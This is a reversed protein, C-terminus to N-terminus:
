KSILSSQLELQIFIDNLSTFIQGHGPYFQYDCDIFKSIFQDISTLYDIRSSNPLNLPSKFDKMVFDGTFVAQEYKIIICGPSHGPTLMVTFAKDDFFLVENDEVITFPLNYQFTPIEESYISFNRRPNNLEIATNKSCFIPMQYLDWLDQIGFTHDCHSHTLFYGLLHGKKADLISKIHSININGIDIGIFKGSAIEILYNNAHRYPSILTHITM